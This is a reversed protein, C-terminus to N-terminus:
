RGAITEHDCFVCGRESLLAATSRAAHQTRSGISLLLSAIPPIATVAAVTISYEAGVDLPGTASQQGSFRRPRLLHSPSHCAPSPM